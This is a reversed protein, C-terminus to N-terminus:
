SAQQYMSEVELRQGNGNFYDKRLPIGNIDNTVMVKLLFKQEIDFYTEEIVHCWQDYKQICYGEVQGKNNLMPFKLSYGKNVNRSNLFTKLSTFSQKSQATSFNTTRM